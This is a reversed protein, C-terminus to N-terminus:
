RRRREPRLARLYDERRNCGLLARLIASFAPHRMHLLARRLHYHAAQRTCGLQRGLQALTHGGEGDLGYYACVIWRQRAPLREVLARLTARVEWELLDVLPDLVRDALPPSAPSRGEKGAQAVAGWVQRAIAVSAYTSFAIGREPDFGLIARWLGIRGEQLAEAYTLSGRWQQRVIHHALGDHERMLRAVSVSDGAQAQHFLNTAGLSDTTCYRV